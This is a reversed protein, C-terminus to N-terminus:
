FQTCDLLKEINKPDAIREYRAMKEEHAALLEPSTQRDKLDVLKTAGWLIWHLSILPERIKVKKILHDANKGSLRAYDHLFNVRDESRLIKRSCWMQVPESLFCCIDYSCDDVRPKEWDILKLGEATKIFNDCSVDTHNLSDPHYLHRNNQVAAESTALLNKALRITKTNATGRSEYYMLDNHALAYTDPLPDKWVVFQMGASELFHLKALLDVVNWVDKMELTLYPGELYEEILVGYDFWQRSIDFHYAKPAIRYNQLFKLIRFEYEIQNSLGSQPEINIRFIFEKQHIRVRFNLNYSGPLMDLIEVSDTDPVGLLSPPLEKLYKKIKKRQSPM